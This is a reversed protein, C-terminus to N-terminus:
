ISKKEEDLYKQTIANLLKTEKLSVLSKSINIYDNFVIKIKKEDTINLESILAFILSKLVANWNEFKRESEVYKNIINTFNKQNFNKIYNESLSSLYKKNFKLKFEKKQGIAAINSNYFNEQFENISDISKLKLFESQFIYQVFALRTQSKLYNQM